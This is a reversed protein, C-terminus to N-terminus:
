NEDWLKKAIYEMVDDKQKEDSIKEAIEVAIDNNDNLRLRLMTDQADKRLEREFYMFIGSVIESIIGNIVVVNNIDSKIIEQIIISFGLIMGALGVAFAINAKIIVSRYSRELLEKYDIKEKSKKCMTM